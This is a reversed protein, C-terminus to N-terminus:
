MTKDLLGAQESAIISPEERNEERGRRHKGIQRGKHGRNTIDELGINGRGM